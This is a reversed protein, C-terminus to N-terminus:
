MPPLSQVSGEVELFLFYLNLALIVGGDGSPRSISCRRPLHLALLFVEELLLLSQLVEEELSFLLLRDLINGRQVLFDLGQAFHGQLKLQPQRRVAFLSAKLLSSSTIASALFAKWIYFIVTLVGKTGRSM